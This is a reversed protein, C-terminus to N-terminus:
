KFVAPMKQTMGGMNFKFVIVIPQSIIKNSKAGWIELEHRV